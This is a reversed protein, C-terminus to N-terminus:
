DGGHLKGNHGRSEQDKSLSIPGLTMEDNADELELDATFEGVSNAWGRVVRRFHRLGAGDDSATWQTVIYYPM